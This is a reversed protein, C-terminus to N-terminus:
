TKQKGKITTKNITNLKLVNGNDYTVYVDNYDM